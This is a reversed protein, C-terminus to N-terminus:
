ARAARVRGILDAEAAEPTPYMAFLKSVHALDLIQKAMGHVGSLALTKGTKIRSVYAHVLFGVAASDLYSLRSLDFILLPEVRSMCLDQIEVLHDLILPGTVSVIITAPNEGPIVQVTFDM